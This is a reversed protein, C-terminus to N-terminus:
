LYDWFRWTGFLARFAIWLGATFITLVIGYIVFKVVSRGCSGM